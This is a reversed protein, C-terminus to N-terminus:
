QNSMVKLKLMPGAIINGNHVGVMAPPDVTLLLVLINPYHHHWHVCSLSLKHHFQSSLLLVNVSNYYWQKQQHTQRHSATTSKVPLLLQM